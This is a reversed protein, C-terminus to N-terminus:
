PGDFEAPPPWVAFNGEVVEYTHPKGGREYEIELYKARDPLPDGGMVDNAVLMRGEGKVLQDNVTPGPYIWSEGRGYRAGIFRVDGVAQPLGGKLPDEDRNKATLLKIRARSEAAILHPHLLYYTVYILLAATLVLGGAVYFGAPNRTKASHFSVGAAVLVGGVVTLLQLGQRVADAWKREVRSSYSRGCPTRQIM